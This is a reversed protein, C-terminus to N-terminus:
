TKVMLYIGALLFVCVSITVAWIIAGTIIATRSPLPLPDHRMEVEHREVPHLYLIPQPNM